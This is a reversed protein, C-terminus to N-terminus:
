LYDNIDIKGAYYDQQEQAYTKEKQKLTKREHKDNAKQANKDIQLRAKSKYNKHQGASDTLLHKALTDQLEPQELLRGVLRGNEGREEKINEILVNNYQNVRALQLTDGEVRDAIAMPQIYKQELMFREKGDTSVALVQSLDTTDYQISWDKDAHNRFELDFCDYWCKQGNITMVLGEGKLRNTYGTNSGFTLLYNEQSMLIKYEPKATLWANGYDAAKKSREANIISQIQSICGDQDPFQKKIKNIYDSNPQNKSGSSINHGSWNNLLKCYNKNIHNFYPEVIKAKANGVSAPTFLYSMAEYLPTLKKIAYNDSQLQYPMFYQGFLEKAHQMANQCALTILEPTEHTGIAYGIPYKNFADLVVVVTLRNHYTTVTKGEENVTTQQYLLEVSWGDLTWYLMPSSPKKRKNQMLINNKLSKVGKRGAHTILNKEKKRNAVTQATIPKWDLKEAITNYINAIMTNDLNTHKAILEDLLAMQKKNAVKRSNKNQLKGSILAVYSDKAYATAKRRLGDKSAPLTHAVERFANVDKSLSLWLDLRQVGLARAYARRDQKVELVANLVSANYTYEEVLKLDLKQNNNQGYRYSIYFEYAARDAQYFGAFYAKKVLEPPNGFKLKLRDKWERSISDHLILADHGFCGRRLEKETCTDSRMRGNLAKYSIVRISDEHNRTTTLFKIKVGLKENYFQYPINNNDHQM